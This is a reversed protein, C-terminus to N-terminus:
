DISSFKFEGFKLMQISELKPSIVMLRNYDETLAKVEESELSIGHTEIIMQLEKPLKKTGSEARKFPELEPSNRDIVIGEETVFNSDIRSKESLKVYFRLYSTEGDTSQYLSKTEESTKMMGSAQQPNWEEAIIKGEKGLHKKVLNKVFSPYGAESMLCDGRIATIKRLGPYPFKKADKKRSEAKKFKSAGDTVTILSAFTTASGEPIISNLGRLTKIAQEAEEKTMTKMFLETIKM